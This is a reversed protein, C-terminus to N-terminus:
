RKTISAEKRFVGSIKTVRLTIGNKINDRVWQEAEPIRTFGSKYNAWSVFEDEQIAIEVIVKSRAARPM